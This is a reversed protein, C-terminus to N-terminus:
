VVDGVCGRGRAIIKPEIRISARSTNGRPSHDCIDRLLQLVQLAIVPQPLAGPPRGILLREFGTYGSHAAIEDVVVQLPVLASRRDRPRILHQTRSAAVPRNGIALRQRHDEVVHRQAMVAHSTNQSTLDGM